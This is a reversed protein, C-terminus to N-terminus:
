HLINFNQKSISINIYVFKAATMQIYVPFYRSSATPICEMQQKTVTILSDSNSQPIPSDVVPRSFIIVSVRKHTNFTDGHCYGCM